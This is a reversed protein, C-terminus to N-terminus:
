GWGLELRPHQLTVTHGRFQHFTLMGSGLKEMLVWNREMEDEQCAIPLVRSERELQLYRMTNGVEEAVRM